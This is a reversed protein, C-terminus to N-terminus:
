AVGCLADEPHQACYASTPQSSQRRGRAIVWAAIVVALAVAVGSVIWATSSSTSSTAAPARAATVGAPVTVGRGLSVAHATGASAVAVGGGNGLENMALATQAFVIALFLSLVLLGALGAIRRQARIKM